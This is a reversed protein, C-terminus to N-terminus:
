IGRADFGGGCYECVKTYGKMMRNCKAVYDRIKGVDGFRRM